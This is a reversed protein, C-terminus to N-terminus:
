FYAALSKNDDRSKDVLIEDGPLLSLAPPCSVAKQGCRADNSSQTVRSRWLPVCKGSPVGGTYRTVGTRTRAFRKIAWLSLPLFPFWTNPKITVSHSTTSNAPCLVQQM